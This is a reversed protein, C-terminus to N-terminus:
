KKINKNERRQSEKRKSCEGKHRKHLSSYSLRNLPLMGGATPFRLLRDTIHAWDKDRETTKYPHLRPTKFGGGGEGKRELLKDPFWNEPM